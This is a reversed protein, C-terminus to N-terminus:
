KERDLAMTYNIPVLVATTMFGIDGTQDNVANIGIGLIIQDQLVM